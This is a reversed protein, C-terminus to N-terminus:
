RQLLGQHFKSGTTHRQKSQQISVSNPDNAWNDQPTLELYTHVSVIREKATISLIVIINHRHPLFDSNGQRNQRSYIRLDGLGHQAADYDCCHSPCCCASDHAPSRSGDFPACYLSPCNSSSESHYPSSSFTCHISTDHTTICVSCSVCPTNNTILHILVSSKHHFTSKHTHKNPGAHVTSTSVM